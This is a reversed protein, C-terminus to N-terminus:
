LKAKASTVITQELVGYVILRSTHGWRPNCTTLTIRRQTPKVGPRGPVPDLVNVATPVTIYTRTVRYVFVRTAVRVILRDGVRVQDLFAFPQDHTARHGAVAFNGVKGPMATGPYHGPGLALDNLTVGEVVVWSDSLRPITLVALPKGDAPQPDGPAIPLAAGHHAGTATGGGTSGSGTDGTGGGTTTGGAAGSGTASHAWQQTLETRLSHQARATAIGTGFLQWTVFLLLVVGATLMLEGLVGAVTRATQGPPVSSHRPRHRPAATTVV